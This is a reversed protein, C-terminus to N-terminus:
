KRKSTGRRAKPKRGRGARALNQGEGLPGDAAQPAQAAALLNASLRLFDLEDAKFLRREPTCGARIRVYVM